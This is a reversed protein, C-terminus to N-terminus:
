KSNRRYRPRTSMEYLTWAGLAIGLTILTTGLAIWFM